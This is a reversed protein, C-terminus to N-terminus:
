NTSANKELEEVKSSLEKVAEILLGVLGDYEVTKYDGQERLEKTKVISPLIKEIDQAIVGASAEGTKKWDFTVGKIRNVKDLAGDITKINDKQREDSVTTTTYAVVNGECIMDGNLAVRVRDAIDVYQAGTVGYCDILETNGALLRIRDTLFDIWTGTDGAHIIHDQVNINRTLLTGTSPQYEFDGDSIYSYGLANAASATTWQVPYFSSATNSHRTYPRFNTSTDGNLLSTVTGGSLTGTLSAAGNVTLDSSTVSGFTVDQPTAAGSMAFTGGLDPLQFIEDQTHNTNGEIISHFNGSRRFRLQAGYLEVLNRGGISGDQKVSFAITGSNTSTKLTFDLKSNGFAANSGSIGTDAITTGGIRFNSSQVLNANVDGILDGTVDGTVNGEVDSVLTGKVYSADAKNITGAPVPDYENTLNWKSDSSDFWLGMHTYGVGTTGTNRNTFFGTDVDIPSATGTWSDNLTHGTTSGFTVSINDTSHILQPDGTIDVNSAATTVFNDTSWAFTDVGNTGSGVGDIKVYYTTPTTGTFHGAFFADDLGTGNFTTGAEGIANGENARYFPAGATVDATSVSTTTGLVTLNGDVQLDDGIHASTRVRFSNVSHNQQNVLLIGETAHSKVVWGLCMPFNPYVPSSNQVAGASLGVFFNTGANLASTDVDHLQGAIICYGYSNNDIDHAALGQANYANVDTADALGVTPVDISGGTYNGSFYLPTGKPISAGTNNYVRQHEELGLEHTVGDVDSYYNLTKHTSDYFLRGEQYAPHTIPTYDTFTDIAISDFSGGSGLLAVTGSADPLTITRDATPDTVTLTTEYNDSTSGEFVLDTGIPANLYIRMDSNLSTSGGLYVDGLLKINGYSTPFGAATVIQSNVRFEGPTIQWYHSQATLISPNIDVGNISTEDFDTLVDRSTFVNAAIVPVTGSANPLTITRDATPDEVTLTTEFNDVTSGEFVVNGNFGVDGTFTGGSVDMKTSLDVSSWQYDAGNWELYEGTAATSINLHSDVLPEVNAADTVDANAEVGDLKSKDSSSMLGDDTSTAVTTIGSTVWATGNYVLLESSTTNFYIDGSNVPDGNGDVTPDTAQAGLYIGDIEALAAEAAAQAAQADTASTAANTESTAANTESTAANTESTAAANARNLSQTASVAADSASDDASSASQAASTSYSSAAFAQTTATNKHALAANSYAEASTEAAEAATQADQAADRAAEAANKAGEIADQETNTLGSGSYFSSSM